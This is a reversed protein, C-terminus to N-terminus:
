YIKEANSLWKSWHRSYAHVKQTSKGTIDVVPFDKIKWDFIGGYLNEVNRYGAKILKEAIDESRVGISCYVVIRENKLDTILAPLKFDNYGVLIAGPIHSVEYEEKERADLIMVKSNLQHMRLEEASIYAVNGSNYKRLIEGISNQSKGPTLVLFSFLILLYYKAM